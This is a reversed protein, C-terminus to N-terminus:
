KEQKAAWALLSAKTFRYHATKGTGVNVCPIAGNAALQRIQDSSTKLFEAAEAVTLVGDDTAANRGAEYADRAIAAVQDPTLIAIPTPTANM